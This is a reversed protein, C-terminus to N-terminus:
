LRSDESDPAGMEFYDPCLRKLNMPQDLIDQDDWDPEFELGDEDGFESVEDMGSITIAQSDDDSVFSM